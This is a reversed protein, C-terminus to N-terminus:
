ALRPRQSDPSPGVAPTGYIRGDEARRRWLVVLLLAVLLALLGFFTRLVGTSFVVDQWRDGSGAVTAGEIPASGTPDLPIFNEDVRILADLDLSGVRDPVDPNVTVYPDMHARVVYFGNASPAAFTVQADLSELDCDETQQELPQGTPPLSPDSPIDDEDYISFEVPEGPFCGTLTATFPYGPLGAVDSVFLEERAAPAYAAVPVGVALAGFWAVGFAGLTLALRKMGNVEDAFVDRL